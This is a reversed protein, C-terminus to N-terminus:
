CKVMLHFITHSRSSRENINSHGMKKNDAGKKLLRTCEEM